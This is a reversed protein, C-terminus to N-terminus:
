PVITHTIPGTGDLDWTGQEEASVDFKVNYTKIIASGSFYSGAVTNEYIKWQVVTGPNTIVNAQLAAQQADSLDFNGGLKLTYSSLGAIKEVWKKNNLDTVDYTDTSIGLEATKLGGVTQYTSNNMQVIANMGATATM